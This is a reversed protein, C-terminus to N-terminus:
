KLTTTPIKGATFNGGQTATGAINHRNVAPIKTIGEVALTNGGFFSFGGRALVNRGYQILASFYRWIKTKGSGGFFYRWFLVALSRYRGFPVALVLCRWFPVASVPYRRFPVAYVSQIGGLFYRSKKEHENKATQEKQNKPNRIPLVGKHVHLCLSAGAGACVDAGVGAWVVNLTTWCFLSRNLPPIGTSSTTSHSPSISYYYHLPQTRQKTLGQNPRDSPRSHAPPTAVGM